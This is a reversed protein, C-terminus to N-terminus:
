IKRHEGYYKTQGPHRVQQVVRRVVQGALGHVGQTVGSIHVFYFLSM